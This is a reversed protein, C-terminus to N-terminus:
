RPGFQKPPPGFIRHATEVADKALARNGAAGIGAGVGFPLARGVLLAGQRRGARILLHRALRKNLGRVGEKNIKRTLVDAWSATRGGIRELAVVGPEGVLVALVLARQADEDVPMGGHIEATALAFLATAEVFAAIEAAGGALSALTGVAPLASVGGAAAGLTTVATLYRREILRAVVAPPAYPRERRIREVYACVREQQGDLAAALVRDLTQEVRDPLQVFRPM